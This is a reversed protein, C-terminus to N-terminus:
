MIALRLLTTQTLKPLSIVKTNNYKDEHCLPNELEALLLEIPIHEVFVDKSKPYKVIDNEQFFLCSDIDNAIKQEFLMHDKISFM